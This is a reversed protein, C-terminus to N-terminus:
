TGALMLAMAQPDSEESCADSSEVPRGDMDRGCFLSHRAAAM